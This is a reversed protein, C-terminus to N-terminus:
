KSQIGTRLPAPLTIVTGGDAVNARGVNRRQLTDRALTLSVLWLIERDSIIFLPSYSRSALCNLLGLRPHRGLPWTFKDKSSNVGSSAICSSPLGPSRASKRDVRGNRRTRGSSTRLTGVKGSQRISPSREYEYYAVRGRKKNVRLQILRELKKGACLRRIKALIEHKEHRKKDRGHLSSIELAKCAM